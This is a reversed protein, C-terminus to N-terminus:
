SLKWVFHYFTFFWLVFSCRRYGHMLGLLSVTLESFWGGVDLWIGRESVDVRTYFSFSNHVPHSLPPFVVFSGFSALAPLDIPDRTPRSWKNGWVVLFGLGTWIRGARYTQMARYDCCSGPVTIVNPVCEHKQMEHLPWMQNVSTCVLCCFWSQTEFFVVSYPCHTQQHVSCHLRIIYFAGRNNLIFFLTSCIHRMRCKLFM